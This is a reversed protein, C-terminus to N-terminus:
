QASPSNNNDVKQDDELAKLRKHESIIFNITEDLNTRKIGSKKLENQVDLVHDHNPKELCIWSTTSCNKYKASDRSSM